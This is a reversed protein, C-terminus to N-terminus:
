KVSVSVSFLCLCVCLTVRTHTPHPPLLITSFSSTSCDSRRGCPSSRKLRLRGRTCASRWCKRSARRSASCSPTGMPAGAGPVGQLNWCCPVDNSHVIVTLVSGYTQPFTGAAAANGGREAPVDSPDVFADVTPRPQRKSKAREEEEAEELARLIEQEEDDEEEEEDDEEEEEETSEQDNGGAPSTTPSAIPSGGSNKSRKGTSTLRTAPAAAPAETAATPHFVVCDDPELDDEGDIEVTIGARAMTLRGGVAAAQFRAAIRQLTQALDEGRVLRVAKAAGGDAGAVLSVFVRFSEMTGVAATLVLVDVLAVGFGCCGACCPCGARDLVM